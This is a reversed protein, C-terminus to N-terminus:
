ICVCRLQELEMSVIEDTDQSLGAKKLEAILRDKENLTKLAKTRYQDLESRSEKLKTNVEVLESACENRIRVLDKGATEL